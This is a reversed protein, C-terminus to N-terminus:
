LEHVQHAGSLRNNASVTLPLTWHVTLIVDFINCLAFTKVWYHGNHLPTRQITCLCHMM